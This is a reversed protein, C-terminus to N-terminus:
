RSMRGSTRTLTDTTAAEPSRLFGAGIAVASALAILMEDIALGPLVGDVLRHALGQEIEIRNRGGGALHIDHKARAPGADHQVFCDAM